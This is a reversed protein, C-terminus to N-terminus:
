ALVEWRAGEQGACDATRMFTVASSLVKGKGPEPAMGWPHWNRSQPHSFGESGRSLSVQAPLLKGAATLGGRSCLGPFPAKLQGQWWDTVSAVTPVPQTVLAAEGVM